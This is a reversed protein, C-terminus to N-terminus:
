RAAPRARAHRSGGANGVGVVADGVSVGSSDGVSATQLGSANRLQLVAVDDTPDTGVVDARYRRAPRSRRHGDIPDRRRHRPQQHPDRRGLHAGHRHRRERAEPVEARLRGHRDGSSSPRPPGLRRRQASTRRGTGNRISTVANGARAQASGSRGVPGPPARGRDGGIGSGRRDRHRHRAVIAAAATRRGLARAAALAAAGAPVRQVARRTTAPDPSTRGYRRGPVPLVLSDSQVSM